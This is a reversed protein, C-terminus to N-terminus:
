ANICERPHKIRPDLLLHRAPRFMCHLHQTHSGCAVWRKCHLSAPKGSHEMSLHTIPLLGIPSMFIAFSSRALHSGRIVAPQLVLLDDPAASAHLHWSPLSSMTFRKVTPRRPCGPAALSIPVLVLQFLNTPLYKTM